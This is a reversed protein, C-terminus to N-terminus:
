EGHGLSFTLRKQIGILSLIGLGIFTFISPEPIQNIQIYDLETIGNASISSGTAGGERSCFTVL